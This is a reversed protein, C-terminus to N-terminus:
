KQTLYQSSGLALNVAARARALDNSGAGRPLSNVYTGIRTKTADVTEKVVTGTPGLFGQANKCTM